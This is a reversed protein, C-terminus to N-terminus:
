YCKGFYENNRWDRPPRECTYGGVGDSNYVTSTTDNTNTTNTTNTNNTNNTSPSDNNDVVERIPDVHGDDKTDSVVVRIPDVHGDDERTDSVVEDIPDVHGDEKPPVVFTGDDQDVYIVPIEENSGADSNTDSNSGNGDDVLDGSSGSSDSSDDILNSGSGGNNNDNNDVINGSSDSPNSVVLAKTKQLPQFAVEGACNQFLAMVLTLSSIILVKEKNLRM